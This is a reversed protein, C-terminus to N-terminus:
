AKKQFARRRKKWRFNELKESKWRRFKDRDKMWESYDKGKKCEIFDALDAVSSSDQSGQLVCRLFIEGNCTEGTTEEISLASEVHNKESSGPEQEQARNKSSTQSRTGLYLTRIKQFKLAVAYSSKRDVLVERANHSPESKGVTVPSKQSSSKVRSDLLSRFAHLDGAEHVFLKLLILLTFICNKVLFDLGSAYSLSLLGSFHFFMWKSKKHRTPQIEMMDHLFKQVPLRIGFQQFCNFTAVLFDYEKSLAVNESTKLSGSNRGQTLIRIAQLMASSMLKLISALLCIHQPSTDEKKHLITDDVDDSSGQLTICSIISLIDDRTSEEVVNLSEKTYAVSAAVLESREKLLTSSLYSNWSNDSKAILYHIKEKTAPLLCSEFDMQSYSARFHSKVFSDDGAIPYGETHMNSMHRTYLAVSREFASLYARLESSPILHESSMSIGIVESVLLILYAQFMKPASLLIPNLFLSLATTLTMEPVRFNNNPLWFLRDLFNKFAQDDSLSVVFHASLVELVSGINGHGFYRTFVFENGCSLSDVIVLYQRVSEHMLLEDAFVELVACLIAHFPNSLEAFSLSTLSTVLHEAHVTTGGNDVYMCKRSVEKEFSNYPKENGGKLKVSVCKRLIGLLIRGKEVLLKQDLVLLKFVVICCRLLLTLEKISAEVNVHFICHSHVPYPVVDNLASFLENFKANLKHLLVDSLERTDKFKLKFDNSNFETESTNLNCEPDSCSLTLLLLYLGELTEPKLGQPSSISSILTRFNFSSNNKRFKKTRSTRKSAM